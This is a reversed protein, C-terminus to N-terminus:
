SSLRRELGMEINEKYCCKIDVLEEELRELQKCIGQSYSKKIHGQHIDLIASSFSTM